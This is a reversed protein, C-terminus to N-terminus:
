IGRFLVGITLLVYAIALVDFVNSGNIIPVPAHAYRILMALLALLMSISFILISPPTLVFGGRRYAM